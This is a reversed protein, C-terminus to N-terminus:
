DRHDRGAPDLLRVLVRRRVWGRRLLQQATDPDYNIQWEPRWEAHDPTWGYYSWGRDALGGFIKDALREWDLMMTMATRVKRAREMSEDNSWEGIWPHEDDPLYGPRMNVDNGEGAADFYDTSPGTTAQM